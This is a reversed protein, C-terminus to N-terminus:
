KRGRMLKRLAPPPEKPNEVAAHFRDFDENSLRIAEGRRADWELQALTPSLFERHKDGELFAVRHGEKAELTAMAFLTVAEEVIQSVAAGTEQEIARLQAM